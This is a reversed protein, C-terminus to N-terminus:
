VSDENLTTSWPIKPAGPGAALFLVFWQNSIGKGSIYSAMEFGRPKVGTRSLM